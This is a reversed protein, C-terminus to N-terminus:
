SKRQPYIFLAQAIGLNIELKGNLMRQVHFLGEEKGYSLSVAITSKYLCTLDVAARLTVSHDASRM